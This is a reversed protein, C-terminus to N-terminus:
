FSGLLNIIGLRRIWDYRSSRRTNVTSKSDRNFYIAIETLGTRDRYYSLKGKISEIEMIVSGIEREVDLTQELKSKNFIEYLDNLLKEKSKLRTRLDVLEPGIDSHFAQEDMIFGNDSLIKQLSPKRDPALRIVMRDGSLLNVYGGYEAVQGKLVAMLKEPNECLVYYRYTSIVTDAASVSAVLPLCAFLLVIMLSQITRM